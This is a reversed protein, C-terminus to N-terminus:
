SVMHAMESASPNIPPFYAPEVSQLSSSLVGLKTLLFAVGEPRIHGDSAYVVTSLYNSAQDDAIAEALPQRPRPEIHHYELLSMLRAEKEESDRCQEIENLQESISRYLEPRWLPGGYLKHLDIYHDRLAGNQNIRSTLELVLKQPTYEQFFEKQIFEDHNHLNSYPDDIQDMRRYGPIGLSVGLNHGADFHHHVENGPIKSIAKKFCGLRFEAVAKLLVEQSTEIPAQCCVSLYTNLIAVYYRMGCFSSAAILEVLSERTVDSDKQQDLKVIIHKLMCELDDFFKKCRETGEPPVGVFHERTSIRRIMVDLGNRILAEAAMPNGSVDGRDKEWAEHFFSVWDPDKIGDLLAILRDLPPNEPPPATPVEYSSCGTAFHGPEIKLHSSTFEEVAQQPYKTLMQQCSDLFERSSLGAFLETTLPKQNLLFAIEVPDGPIESFAGGNFETLIKTVAPSRPEQRQNFITQLFESYREKPIQVLENHHESANLLAQLPTEGAGNTIRPDVHPAIRRVMEVNGMLIALHLITNGKEDRTQPGIKRELMAKVGESLGSLITQILLPCSGQEGEVPAGDRILQALAGDRYEKVARQVLRQKVEKPLDRMCAGEEALRLLTEEDHVHNASPVLQSLAHMVTNLIRDNTHVAGNMARAFASIVTTGSRVSLEKGLTREVIDNCFSHAVQEVALESPCRDLQLQQAPRLPSSTEIM